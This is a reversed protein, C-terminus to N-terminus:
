APGWSCAKTFSATTSSTNRKCISCFVRCSAAPGATPAAVVRGMCSNVEKAATTTYILRKFEPGLVEIDCDRIKKAGNDIMGSLSQMDEDLGTQIADCMVAYAQAMGDWIQQEDAGKELVEYALVPQWLPEGSETIHTRWEEFSDFLIGM